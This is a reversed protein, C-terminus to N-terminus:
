INPAHRAENIVGTVLEIIKAPDKDNEETKFINLTYGVGFQKKLFISSGCTKIQGEGMIVIRDGLYEAEDMFHTTLIIIKNEKYQKLM